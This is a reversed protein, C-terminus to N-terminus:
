TISSGDARYAWFKWGHIRLVMAFDQPFTGARDQLGDAWLIIAPGIDGRVERIGARGLLKRKHIDYLGPWTKGLSIPAIEFVCPNSHQVESSMEERGVCWSILATDGSIEAEYHCVDNVQSDFLNVLGWPRWYAAGAGINANELCGAPYTIEWVGGVDEVVPQYAPDAWVASFNNNSASGTADPFTHASGFETMDVLPLFSQEIHQGSEFICNQRSSHDIAAKGSAWGTHGRMKLAGSTEVKFQRVSHGNAAYPSGRRNNNEHWAVLDNPKDTDGGSVGGAYSGIGCNRLHHGWAYNSESTIDFTCGALNEAKVGSGAANHARGVIRGTNLQDSIFWAHGGSNFISVAEAIFGDPSPGSAGNIIHVGFGADDRDTWGDYDPIAAGVAAPYIDINRLQTGRGPADLLIGSGNSVLEFDRILRRKSASGTGVSIAPMAGTITRWELISNAGDFIVHKENPIEITGNFYVTGPLRKNGFSPHVPGGFRIYPRDQLTLFANLASVNASMVGASSDGYVGGLDAFDIMEDEGEPQPAATSTTTTSGTTTTTPGSTTTTTPAATTTQVVVGSAGAVVLTITRDEQKGGSTVIRNVLDYPEGSTGGQVIVTARTSTAQEAVVTIAAPLIWTSSEIREDAPLWDSWDVSYDIAADPDKVYTPFM